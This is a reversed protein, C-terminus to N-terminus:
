RELNLAFPCEEPVISVLVSFSVMIIWFEGHKLNYSLALKSRLLDLALKSRLLDLIGHLKEQHSGLDRFQWINSAKPEKLPYEPVKM